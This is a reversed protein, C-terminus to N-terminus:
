AQTFGLVDLAIELTDNVFRLGNEHEQIVEGDDWQVLLGDDIVTGRTGEREVRDGLM